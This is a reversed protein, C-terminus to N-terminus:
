NCELESAPKVLAMLAADKEAIRKQKAEIKEKKQQDKFARYKAKRKEKVKELLQQYRPDADRKAKAQQYAEKRKQRLEEKTMM